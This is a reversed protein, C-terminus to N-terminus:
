AGKKDVCVITRCHRSTNLGETNGPLEAPARNQVTGCRIGTGTRDLVNAGNFDIQSLPEAAVHFSMFDTWLVRVATFCYYDIIFCYDPLPSLPSFSLLTIKM